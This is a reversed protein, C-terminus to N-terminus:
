VSTKRAFTVTLREGNQIAIHGESHAFNGASGGAKVPSDRGFPVYGLCPNFVIFSFFNDIEFVIVQM